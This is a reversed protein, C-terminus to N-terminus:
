VMMANVSTNVRAPSSFNLGTATNNKSVSLLQSALSAKLASHQGSILESFERTTPTISLLPQSSGPAAPALLSLGPSTM